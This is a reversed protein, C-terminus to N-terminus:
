LYPYTCKGCKHFVDTSGREPATPQFWNIALQLQSYSSPCASIKEFSPNKILPYVTCACDPDLMDAFGDGDADVGNNCIEQASAICGLGVLLGILLIRFM